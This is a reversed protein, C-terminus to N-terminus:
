NVWDNISMTSPGKGNTIHLYNASTKDWGFHCQRVTDNHYAEFIKHKMKSETVVQQIWGGYQLEQGEEQDYM